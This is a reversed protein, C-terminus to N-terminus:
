VSRAEASAGFKPSPERSGGPAQAEGPQKTQARNTQSVQGAASAGGQKTNVRGRAGQRRLHSASGGRGPGPLNLSCSEAASVPLPTEAAGPGSLSVSREEEEEGGGKEKGLRVRGKARGGAEAPIAKYPAPLSRGSCPSILTEGYIAETDPPSGAVQRPQLPLSPPFGRLPFLPSRVASARALPRARRSGFFPGPAM